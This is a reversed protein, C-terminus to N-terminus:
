QSLAFPIGVIGAGVITNVFNAVAGAASSNGTPYEE